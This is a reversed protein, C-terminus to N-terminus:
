LQVVGTITVAHIAGTLTATFSVNNLERAAKDVTSIDAAVPVTISFTPDIAIGGLSQGLQLVAAIEAEVAAIGGDTYPVKPSNALLAFVGETIRAQIWDVLVIIDIYEGEGVTGDCTINRGGVEVYINANKALGNTQQTTTLTDVTIGALTKFKATYSGPDLPLIVGLLAAEPFQSGANSTYFVFSRAYTNAKVVAAITTTDAADTTNVIDADASGIAFLKQQTEIYAAAAEQDAQTRLTYVYGYWDDDEEQIATIDAAMTGTTTFAITLKTEGKVSYATGSVTPDLDFSGDLNDTASVDVGTIAAVLLAAITIATASVGSNVTFTTGNITISYSTNDTVTAVTVVTTDGTARRGIVLETVTPQQSFVAQAALYERATTLFDDAVDSLSTYRKSLSTFAKNIGHVLITSFGTRSVSGTERSISVNVISEISM